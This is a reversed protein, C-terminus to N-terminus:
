RVLTVNGSLSESFLTTRRVGTYDVQWVYVGTEAPENKYRGDWVDNVNGTEFILEGWRNFIRMQYETVPCTVVPRFFDNKANGDPSFATPYHVCASCDTYEAILTDGAEFCSNYVQVWYTGAESVTFTSDASGDHWLYSAGPFAASLYLLDDICLLSDNGLSVVPQQDVLVTFLQPSSKCGHGDTAIATYSTDSGPNVPLPNVANIGDWSVYYPPTGGSVTAFLEGYSGSCIVTDDPVAISVMDPQLLAVTYTYICQNADTVTLTYLGSPIAGTTSNNGGQPSWQYTYGPNGGTITVSISGDSYGYCSPETMQTVVAVFSDPQELFVELTDFCGLADTVTATYWGACLNNATQSSPAGNSWSYSYPPTGGIGAATISGTCENPCILDSASQVAAEVGGPGPLLIVSLTDTCGANDTVTIEYTGASLGSFTGNTQIGGGNIAYSYPEIGSGASVTLSGSNASCIPQQISDLQLLPGPASFTFSSTDAINGCLDTVYGAAGTLQFTYNEGNQLAPSIQITFTKEQTGGNACSFGSVGSLIFPGGPGQLSFDADEITNCLINESFTISLSTSNCGIPEVIQLSPPVTDFITATADSFDISYGGNSTSWNHINLAYTEGSVVPLLYNFALTPGPGNWNGIGSSSIGTVGYQSSNCSALLAGNTPIEECSANTLNYLGWDYDASLDVPTITFALDGSEIVTFVFWTSNLEGATLCTGPGIENLYNGSGLTSSGTSWIFDCIPIAGLCDQETPTQAKSVLSCLALPIFLAYLTRFSNRLRKRM